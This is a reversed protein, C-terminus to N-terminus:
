SKKTILYFGWVLSGALVGTMAVAVAVAVARVVNRRKVDRAFSLALLGLSFAVVVGVGALVAILVVHGLLPWDVLSASM